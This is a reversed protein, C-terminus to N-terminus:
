LTQTLHFNIKEKFDDSDVLYKSLDCVIIGDELYSEPMELMHPKIDERNNTKLYLFCHNDPERTKFGQLSYSNIDSWKFENERYDEIIIGSESIIIENNIMSHIKYGYRLLYIFVPSFLLGVILSTTDFDHYIIFAIMFVSPFVSVIFVVLYIHPKNKGLIIEEQNNM